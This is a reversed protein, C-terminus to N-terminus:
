NAVVDTPSRPKLRWSGNGAPVVLGTVDLRAGITDAALAAGTFGALSDLQMELPGSGDNVTLRRNAGVTATDGVVADTIRVLAADVRGSDALAALATTLAQTPPTAGITITFMTAQDLTPQGDRESRRGVVRVSDGTFVIPSLVRTTRIAASTDAVHVTTDGFTNRDNLTVAVVVVKRGLAAVRAQAVTLQPFGVGIEAAVSDRAGLLLSDPDARTLTLSDGPLTTTDIALTYRGVPAAAFTFGGDAGSTATLVPGPRGTLRVRVGGLLTDGQDAVRSGNRDFYVFGQVVGTAEITLVRSVDDECAATFALLLTTGVAVRGRFRPSTFGVHGIM